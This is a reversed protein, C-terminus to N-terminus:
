SSEMVTVVIVEPNDPAVAAVVAIDRGALFYEMRCELTGKAANPEPTRRLKGLRLVELVMLRTVQRQKMRTLAHVTFM